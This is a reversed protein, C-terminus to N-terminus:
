WRGNGFWDGIRYVNQLVVPVIRLLDLQRRQGVRFDNRDNLARLRAGREPRQNTVAPQILQAIFTQFRCKGGAHVNARDVIQVRVAHARLHFIRQLVHSGLDIDDHRWRKGESGALEFVIEVFREPL